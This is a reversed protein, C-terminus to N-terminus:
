VREALAMAAAPARLKAGGIVYAFVDRASAAPEKPAAYALGEPANGGRWSAAIRAWEDLEGAPYGAGIDERSRMLRAYVFDATLDAIQPYADHDAIVIAAGHRRALEVFAACAFSDHRVELAHRLTVGECEKPLLDLFAAFDTEDFRKTPAFQWLVPGLKEGLEGIGSDFFTAVSEGAEALLKRNTCYRSAKVAFVFGQRAADRWKAFSERKQLRYYTGNIEISGLRAAAYKLEDAQRLGEPYFVGRWPKYTWGGIGTRVIGGDMM